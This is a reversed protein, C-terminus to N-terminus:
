FSAKRGPQSALPPNRQQPLCIIPRGTQSHNATTYPLWKPHCCTNWYTKYATNWRTNIFYKSLILLFLTWYEVDLIRKVIVGSSPACVLCIAVTYCLDWCKRQVVLSCIRRKHLYNLSWHRLLIDSAVCGTTKPMRKENIQCTDRTIKKKVTMIDIVKNPWTQHWLVLFSTVTALWLWPTASFKPSFFTCFPAIQCMRFLLNFRKRASSHSSCWHSGSAQFHHWM